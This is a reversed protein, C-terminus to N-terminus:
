TAIFKIINDMFVRYHKRVAGDARTRAYELWPRAEMVKTGGHVYGAYKVDRASVGFRGELGQVKTYHRERLNGTDSPVGGGSEGVRWPPSQVAIRKYESLGRQLFLKAQAQVEIPSLALARKLQSITITKSM